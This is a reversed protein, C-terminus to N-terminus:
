RTTIWRPINKDLCQSYLQPTVKFFFYRSQDLFGLNRGYPYTVSVVHCGRDAFNANVEDVLPQRKTLITWERVWAVSNTKTQQQKPTTTQAWAHSVSLEELFTLAAELHPASNYIYIYYLAILEVRPNFTPSSDRWWQSCYTVCNQLSSWVPVWRAWPINWPRGRQSINLKM